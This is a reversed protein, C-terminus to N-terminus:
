LSTVHNDRHWMDCVVPSNTWCNTWICFFVLAWLKQSINDCSFEQDFHWPNRFLRNRMWIWAFENNRSNLKFLSMWAGKWASQYHRVNQRMSLKTNKQLNPSRIHCCRNSPIFILFFPFRFLCTEYYIYDMYIWSVYYRYICVFDQKFTLYVM